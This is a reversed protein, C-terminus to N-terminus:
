LLPLAKELSRATGKKEEYDTSSEFYDFTQAAFSCAFVM